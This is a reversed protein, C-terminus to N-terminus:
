LFELNVIYGFEMTMEEKKGDPFLLEDGHCVFVKGSRQPPLRESNLFTGNTSVDVVYVAGKSPHFELVTHARSLLRGQIVLDNSAGSGIALQPKSATLCVTAQKLTTAMPSLRIGM